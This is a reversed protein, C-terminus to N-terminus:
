IFKKYDSEMWVFSAGWILLRDSSFGINSGKAVTSTTFRKLHHGTVGEMSAMAVRQPKGEADLELAVAVPFKKESDRAPRGRHGPEEGGIYTEDVEVLGQLVSRENRHRMARRLKSLMLWATGYCVDIQKALTLAAIGKKDQALQYIAWFWKWLPVRARHFVTGATVSTQHHCDACEVLKRNALWWGKTHGCDPCAYRELGPGCRSIKLHEWCEEDFGFRRLFTGVDIVAPLPSKYRPPQQSHQSLKETM